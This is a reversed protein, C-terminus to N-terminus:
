CSRAHGETLSNGANTSDTNGSSPKTPSRQTLTSFLEELGDREPRWERLGLARLQDVTSDLTQDGGNHEIRLTNADLLAVTHVGPLQQLTVRFTADPVDRLRAVHTSVRGAADQLPADVVINGLHMMIVRDCMSQVESLIHTSLMVAHDTSLDVVLQRIDRLQNPDLGSTPEDLLIVDPAHVLAQAIGVRQQFGKSLNGIIRRGSKSLGTRAKADACARVRNARPVKRLATCFALQEDVSLEHCLPPQEPLYGIKARARLPEEFLDIGDVVVRGASPALAGALMQMTTSKGAGNPGLFGVVEGKTLSFSIGKVAETQGFYRELGKVQLLATASAPSPQSKLQLAM